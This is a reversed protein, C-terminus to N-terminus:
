NQPTHISGVGRQTLFYPSVGTLPSFTSWDKRTFYSIEPNSFIFTYEPVSNIERALSINV